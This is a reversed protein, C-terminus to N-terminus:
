YMARRSMTNYGSVLLVGIFCMMEDSTVDGIRGKQSAYLNTYQTIMEIVESDLFQRFQQVPTLNNKPGIPKVYNPINKM